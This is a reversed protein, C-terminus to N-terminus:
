GVLASEGQRTGAAPPMVEGSVESALWAYEARLVNLAGVRNANEEFGCEICVFWTQMQSNEGAFVPWQSQEDALSKRRRFLFPSSLLFDALIM